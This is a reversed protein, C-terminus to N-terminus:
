GPMKILESIELSGGVELFPCAQAIALAAEDSDAQIVTYGSMASAGGSSVSGDTAITQTNKIPNMPSVAAEGLSSLWDLYKAKHQQGQEPSMDKPSGIYTILYQAM